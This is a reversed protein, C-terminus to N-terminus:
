GFPKAISEWCRQPKRFGAMALASAAAAASYATSLIPDAGIM